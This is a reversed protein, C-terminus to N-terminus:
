KIKGEKWMRLALVWCERFDGAYECDKKDNLSRCEGPRITEQFWDYPCCEIRHLIFEIANNKDQLNQDYKLTWDNQFM